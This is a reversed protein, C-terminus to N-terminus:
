RGIKLRWLVIAKEYHSTTNIHLPLQNYPTDHALKVAEHTLCHWLHDGTHLWGPTKLGPVNQYWAILIQVLIEQEETTTYM